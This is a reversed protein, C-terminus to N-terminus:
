ESSLPAVFWRFALPAVDHFEQVNVGPNKRLRRADFSHVVVADPKHREIRLLQNEHGKPFDAFHPVVKMGIDIAHQRIAEFGGFSGLRVDREADSFRSYSEARRGMAEIEAPTPALPVPWSAWTVIAEQIQKRHEETLLHEGLVSPPLASSVADLLSQPRCEILVRQAGSKGLHSKAKSLRRGSFLGTVAGREPFYGM